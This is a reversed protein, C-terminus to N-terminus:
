NFYLDQIVTQDKSVVVTVPALQYIKRFSLAPSNSVIQDAAFDDAYITLTVEKYRAPVTLHYEGTSTVTGKVIADAYTGSPNTILDSTNFRAYIVTGAPANEYNLFTTLMTDNTTNLNAKVFGKVHALDPKYNFTLEEKDKKSCSIFVVMSTIALLSFFKIKKM